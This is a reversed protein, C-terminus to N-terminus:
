FSVSEWVRLNWLRGKSSCCGKSGMRERLLVLANDFAAVVQACIEDRIYRIHRLQVRCDSQHASYLACLHHLTRGHQWVGKRTKEFSTQCCYGGNYRITTSQNQNSGMNTNHLRIQGRRGVLILLRLTQHPNVFSIVLRFHWLFALTMVRDCQWTVFNVPRSVYSFLVMFSLSQTM